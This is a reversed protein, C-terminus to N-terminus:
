RKISTARSLFVDDETQAMVGLTGTVPKAAGFLGSNLKGAVELEVDLFKGFIYQAWQQTVPTRFHLEHTNIAKDLFQDSTRQLRDSAFKGSPM